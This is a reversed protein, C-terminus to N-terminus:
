SSTKATILEILSGMNKLKNVEKLKFKIAFHKELQTIIGMHTLSDWGEVDTATLDDRMEFADHGLVTAISSRIGQIIENKEMNMLEFYSGYTATGHASPVPLAKAAINNSFLQVQGKRLAPLLSLSREIQREILKKALGAGRHAEVVYVYEIQLAGLEREIQLDKLATSHARLTVISEAPFTFALLNAKLIMSPVEDPLGEIWGAVAAAPEGALEAILFSSVSFECGDIEELLMAVLLHRLQEETLGCLAALGLRDTGSKEASSIADALFEVDDITAERISQATM